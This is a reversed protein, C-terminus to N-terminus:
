GFVTLWHQLRSLTAQAFLFRYKTPFSGFYELWAIKNAALMRELRPRFERFTLRAQDANGPIQDLFTRLSPPIFNPFMIPMQEAYTRWYMMWMAPRINVPINRAVVDGELQGTLDRLYDIRRKYYYYNRENPPTPQAIGLPMVARNLYFVVDVIPGDNAENYIEKGNILRIPFGARQSAPLWKRWFENKFIFPTHWIRFHTCRSSIRLMRIMRRLITETVARHWQSAKPILDLFLGNNSSPHVSFVLYLKIVETNYGILFCATTTHDFVDRIVGRQAPTLAAFAPNSAMRSLLVLERAQPGANPIAQFAYNRAAFM